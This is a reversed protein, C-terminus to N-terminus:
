LAIQATHGHLVVWVADCIDQRQLRDLAFVPYCVVTPVTVTNELHVGLFSHHFEHRTLFHEVVVVCGFLVTADFVHQHVSNPVVEFIMGLM